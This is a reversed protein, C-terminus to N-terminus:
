TTITENIHVHGSEKPHAFKHIFKSKSCYDKAKDHEYSACDPLKTKIPRWEKVGTSPAVKTALIRKKTKTYDASYTCPGPYFTAVYQADSLYDVGEAKSYLNM